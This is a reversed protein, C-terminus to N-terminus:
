APTVVALHVPRADKVNQAMRTYLDPATAALLESGSFGFRQFAAYAQSVAFTGSGESTYVQEAAVGCAWILAAADASTTAQQLAYHTTLTDLASNLEAWSPFDRAAHDDDIWFNRGAYNHHYDDADSFRTGNLSQHYNVIQAMAVAPCGAVSRQGSVPDIPCDANYPASQHWETKLWGGSPSYGPPPWQQFDDRDSIPNQWMRRYRSREAPGAGAQRFTLDATILEALWLDTAPDFDSTFSYALVPPLDDAAAVVIYGQPQLGFIWALPSDVEGLPRPPLLTGSVELRQLQARAVSEAQATSVSEAYICACLLILALGFLLKKM